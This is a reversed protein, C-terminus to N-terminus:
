LSQELEQRNSVEDQHPTKADPDRAERRSVLFGGTMMMVASVLLWRMGPGMEYYSATNWWWARFNALWVIALMAGSVLITGGSALMLKRSYRYKAGIYVGVVGVMALCCAAIVPLATFITRRGTLDGWTGSLTWHPGEDLRGYRRLDQYAPNGVRPWTRVLDWGSASEPTNEGHIWTLFSALVATAVGFL